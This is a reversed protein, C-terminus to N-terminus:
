IDIMMILVLSKFKLVGDDCHVLQGGVGRIAGGEALLQGLDLVVAVVEDPILGADRAKVLAGEEVEKVDVVALQDGTRGERVHVVAQWLGSGM